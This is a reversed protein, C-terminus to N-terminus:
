TTPSRARGTPRSGTASRTSRRARPCTSTRRRGHRGVLRPSDLDERDPRRHLRQQRDARQDPQRAAAAGQRRGPDPAHEDHQPRPQRGAAAGPQDDRPLRRPRRGQGQVASGAVAHEVVPRSEGQGQAVGDRDHLDLVADHVALGPRLVSQSLRVLRQRHEPHLQPQAAPDAQSRDAARARRRDPLLRRVQAGRQGAQLAGGGDHQVDDALLQLQAEQLLEQDGGRQHVRGLQLAAADRGERARPGLRDAQQRRLGAVQGPQGSTAAPRRRQQERRAPTRASGGCGALM